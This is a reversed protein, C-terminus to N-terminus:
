RIIKVKGVGKILAITFKLKEQQQSELGRYQEKVEEWYLEQLMLDESSSVELEFVRKDEPVKKGKEYLRAATTEINKRSVGVLRIERGTGERRIVM